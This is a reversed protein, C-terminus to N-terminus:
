PFLYDQNISNRIKEEEEKLIKLKELTNNKLEILDNVLLNVYEFPCIPIKNSFEKKIGAKTRIATDIKELIGDTKELEDIERQIFNFREAMKIDEETASISKINEFDTKLKDVNLGNRKLYEEARGSIFVKINDSHV